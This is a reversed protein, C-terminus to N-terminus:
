GGAAERPSVVMKMLGKGRFTMSEQPTTTPSRGSQDFM